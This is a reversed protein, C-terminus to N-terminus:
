RACRPARFIAHDPRPVVSRKHLGARKEPPPHLGALLEDFHFYADGIATFNIKREAFYMGGKNALLARNEYVGESSEGLFDAGDVARRLRLVFIRRV